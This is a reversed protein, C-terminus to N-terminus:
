ELELVKVGVCAACTMSSGAQPVSGSAPSTTALLETGFVGVTM